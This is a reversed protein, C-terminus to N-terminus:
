TAAVAPAAEVAPELTFERVCRLRLIFLTSVVVWAAALTLDGRVGILSSVPGALAYGAPLFVMAGMWSYAAVRALKAPEITRQVASDWVVSALSFAFGACAAAPVLLVVSPHFALILNQAATLIFLGSVVLLPRRPSLRLGAIGGLLAGVGEGTVIAAWSGAGNMAHSSVVPGLVFFPAYTITFYLAIWLTLVWIWQHEVFAGWGERLQQVFGPAGFRLHSSGFGPSCCRAPRTRAATSCSRPAPGVLAVLTGGTAAGLPFAAFRAIALYSNAQQMLDPRVIERVLGYFAPNYFAVAAGGFAQLVILEWIHAHGTVLLVGMTARVCTSAVDSSIMVARRPLRDGVVGGFALMAVQAVTWAAFSLGVATAGGGRDLIAFAVAIPALYTGVYSIARGAFLLRFNRDRLADM